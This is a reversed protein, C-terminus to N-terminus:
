RQQDTTTSTSAATPTERNSSSGLILIDTIYEEGYRRLIDESRGAFVQFRSPSDTGTGDQYRKELRHAFAWGEGRLEDLLRRYLRWRNGFRFLAEIGTCVAVVLSVVLAAWRAWTADVTPSALPPLAVSGLVAPLRWGFYSKRNGAVRKKAQVVQPRWRQELYQRESETLDGVTEILTSIEAMLQDVDSLKGQPNSTTM